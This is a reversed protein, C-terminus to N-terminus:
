NEPKINFSSGFVFKWEEITDGEYNKSQAINLAEFAKDAEEKIEDWNTEDIKRAANNENNTPDAVFIKPIPVPLNNIANLFNITPFSPDSVLKFFRIIGEEINTELGKNTELYSVILEITFSSLQDLEKYNRWWKLARVVATYSANQKRYGNAFDLQKTVSTVYKDGAGGRQPQWVYEKPTEMPVVPVIDIELGTGIFKIKVSKTKGKADTDRVIDKNPYIKKLYNIILDHLRELDDQLNKEGEVYLVLDIDIPNEGTARLITGKKWSGAIIARTVRIGTSTDTTIYKELDEILNKVQDRYTPMNEIKLKIRSVFNQLQTNTLKM